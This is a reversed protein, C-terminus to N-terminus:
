ARGGSRDAEPSTDNKHEASRWSTSSRRGQPNSRTSFWSSRGSESEVEFAQDGRVRAVVKLSQWELIGILFIVALALAMVLLILAVLEAADDDIGLDGFLLIAGVIWPFFQDMVFDQLDEPVLLFIAFLCTMLRLLFRVWRPIRRIEQLATGYSMKHISKALEQSSSNFASGESGDDTKKATVFARRRSELSTSSEGAFSKGEGGSATLESLRNGRASKQEHLSKSRAVFREHEADDESHSLKLQSTKDSSRADWHQRLEQFEVSRTASEFSVARHVPAKPPAASSQEWDRRLADHRSIMEAEPTKELPAADAQSRRRLDPPAKTEAVDPLLGEPFSASVIQRKSAHKSEAAAAAAAKAEAKAAESSPEEKAAATTDTTEAPASKEEADGDDEDTVRRIRRSTRLTWCTSALSWRFAPVAFAM